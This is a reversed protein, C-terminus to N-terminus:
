PAPRRTFRGALASIPDMWPPAADGHGPARRWFGLPSGRGARAIVRLPTGSGHVEDHMAADPRALVPM